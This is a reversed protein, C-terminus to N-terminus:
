HHSTIVIIKKFVSYFINIQLNQKEIENIKSSKKRLFHTAACKFLKSAFEHHEPTTLNEWLSYSSESEAATFDCSYCGIENLLM